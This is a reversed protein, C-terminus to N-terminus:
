NKTMVNNKVIINIAMVSEIKGGNINENRYGPKGGGINEGASAAM